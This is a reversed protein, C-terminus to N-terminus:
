TRKDSKREITLYSPFHCFKLSWGFWWSGKGTGLVWLRWRGRRGGVSMGGEPGVGIKGETVHALLMKSVPGPPEGVDLRRWLPHASLKAISKGEMQLPPFSLGVNHPRPNPVAWGECRGGPRAKVQLM